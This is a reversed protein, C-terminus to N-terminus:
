NDFAWDFTWCAMYFKRMLRKRDPRKTLGAARQWKHIPGGGIGSGQIGGWNETFKLSIEAATTQGLDGSETREM